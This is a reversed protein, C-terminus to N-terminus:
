FDDEYEENPNWTNRSHRSIGRATDFDGCAVADYFPAADSTVKEADSASILVHLFAAGSRQLDRHLLQPLGELFLSCIGKRRLNRCFIRVRELSADGSIVLPLTGDIDFAANARILSLTKSGM